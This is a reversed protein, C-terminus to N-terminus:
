QSTKFVLMMSFAWGFYFVFANVVFEAYQHWDTGYKDVAYKDFNYNSM